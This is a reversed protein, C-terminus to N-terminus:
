LLREPPRDTRRCRTRRAAAPRPSCLGGRWLVHRRRSEYRVPRCFVSSYHHNTDESGRCACFSIGLDCDHLHGAVERQHAMINSTNGHLRSPVAEAARIFRVEVKCDGLSLLFHEEDSSQLLLHENHRSRDLVDSKEPRCLM